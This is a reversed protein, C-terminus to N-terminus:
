IQALKCPEATLYRFTTREMRAALSAVRRNVCENCM